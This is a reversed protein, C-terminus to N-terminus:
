PKSINDLEKKLSLKKLKNYLKRQKKTGVRGPLGYRPGGLAQTAPPNLLYALALKTWELKLDGLRMNCQFCLIGRVLASTHDHDVNTVKVLPSPCIACLGKQFDYITQWDAETLNFCMQLRKARPTLKEKM